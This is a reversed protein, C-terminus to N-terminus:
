LENRKSRCYCAREQSDKYAKCGLAVTGTFMGKAAVKCASFLEPGVSKKYKDCISYLCSKFTYDCKEKERNCTDYCLDHEDCCSTLEAIPMHEKPIHIGFSGCGDAQAVHYRNKQPKKGDPCQFICNEESAENIIDNVANIGQSIRVANGWISWVDGVSEFAQRIGGLLGHSYFFSGCVALITFLLRHRSFM